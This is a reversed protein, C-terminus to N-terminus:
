SEHIEKPTQYYELCGQTLEIFEKTLVKLKDSMEEAQKSYTYAQYTSYCTTLGLALLTIVLVKYHSKKLPM